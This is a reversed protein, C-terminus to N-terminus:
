AKKISMLIRDMQRLMTQSPNAPVDYKTFGASTLYSGFGDTGKERGCIVNSAPNPYVARRMIENIGEFEVYQGFQISPGMFTNYEPDEPFLCMAGGMDGQAIVIKYGEKSIVVETAYEFNNVVVNWDNPYSFTFSLHYGDVRQSQTLPKLSEDTLEQMQRQYEEDTDLDEDGFPVEKVIPSPSTKVREQVPKSTSTQQKQLAIKNGYWYGFYVFGVALVLVIFTILLTKLVINQTSNKIPM